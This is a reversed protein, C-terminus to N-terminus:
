YHRNRSRLLVSAFLAAIVSGTLVAIKVHEDAVSNGGFTLGGILLSVTFGIGGLM